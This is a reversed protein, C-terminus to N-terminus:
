TNPISRNGALLARRPKILAWVQPLVAKLKPKPRSATLEATIARGGGRGPRDASRLKGLGHGMGGM